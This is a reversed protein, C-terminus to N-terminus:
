LVTTTCCRLFARWGILNWFTKKRQWLWADDRYYLTPLHLQSSHISTPRRASYYTFADSRVPPQLVYTDRIWIWNRDNCRVLPLACWSAYVYLPSSFAAYIYCANANRCLYLDFLMKDIYGFCFSLRYLDNISYTNRITYFTYYVYTWEVSMSNCIKKIDTSHIYDDLLIM